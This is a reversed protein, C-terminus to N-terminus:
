MLICRRKAIKKQENLHTTLETQWINLLSEIKTLNRQVKNENVELSTDISSALKLFESKQGAFEPSTIFDLLEEKMKVVAKLIKANRVKNNIGECRHHIDLIEHKEEQVSAQAMRFKKEFEQVMEFYKQMRVDNKEVEKELIKQEENILDAIKFLCDRQELSEKGLPVLSMVSCYVSASVFRLTAFVFSGM